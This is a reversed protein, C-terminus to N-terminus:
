HAHRRPTGAGVAVQILLRNYSDSTGPRVREVALLLKSLDNPSFRVQAAVASFNRSASVEEVWDYRGGVFMRRSLQWQAFVYAGAPDETPGLYTAQPPAGAPLAPLPNHQRMYESQLLVSGWVATIDAGILTQRANIGTEGAGAPCPEYHGSVIECAFPQTNRGTGATLSLEVSASSSVPWWNRLRATYGLGQLTSNPPTAPRPEFTVHGLEDHEDSAEHGEPFQEIMTLQVDQRFGLINFTTGLWAGTGRGGHPGLFRQILYPYEITPLHPRHTTNQKGFPLQFRGARAELGWPLPTASLSAEMVDVSGADDVGVIFDGRFRDDIRVALQAHVERLEFRRASELTSGDPSLDALVDGVITLKEVGLGGSSTTDRQASDTPSIRRAEGRIRALERRLLSDLRALSDARAASDSRAATAPQQQAGLVHSVFLATLVAASRTKV